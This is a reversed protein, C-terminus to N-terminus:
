GTVDCYFQGMGPLDEDLEAPKSQAAARGTLPGACVV